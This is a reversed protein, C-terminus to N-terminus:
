EYEVLKEACFDEFVELTDFSCDDWSEVIDETDMEAEDDIMNVIKTDPHYLFHYGSNDDPIFFWGSSHAM